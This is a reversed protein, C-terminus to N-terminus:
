PQNPDPRPDLLTPALILTLALALTPALTWCPQAPTSNPQVIFYFLILTIM